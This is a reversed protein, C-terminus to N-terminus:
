RERLANQSAKIFPKLLYELITREGTIIDVEATMGTSVVLDEGRRGKRCQGKLDTYCSSKTKLQVRYFTDGKEDTITDPSIDTVVADLGGYISFDYATIKVTAPQNPRIYAIDVPKVRAEVLLNGEIPVIELMPQQQGPQVVSGTTVTVLQVKGDQPAKVEIPPLDGRAADVAAKIPGIESELQSLQARTDAEFTTTLEQMRSQAERLAAQATPQANTLRNLESQMGALNQQARLVDRKSAAGDRVLPTLIGVEERALAAQHTLDKIQQAIQELEKQRQSVQEKLTTLQAANRLANSQFSSMEGAVAEPAKAKLEASFVPLEKGVAEAQLRVQKALLTYYRSEATASDTQTMVPVMRLLVDGAKVVQGLLIDVKVVRAPQEPMIRVALSSPVIRGQAKAVEDVNAIAAWLLFSIFVFAFSYLMWRQRATVRPEGGDHFPDEMMDGGLPTMSDQAKNLLNKLMDLNPKVM